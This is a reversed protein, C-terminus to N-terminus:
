TACARAPVRGTRANDKEPPNGHATEAEQESDQQKGQRAM